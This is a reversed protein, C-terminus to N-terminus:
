RLVIFMYRLEADHRKKLPELYEKRKKKIKWELAERVTKQDPRYPDSIELNLIEDELKTMLSRSVQTAEQWTGQAGNLNIYETRINDFEIAIRRGTSTKVLDIAKNGLNSNQSNVRFEPEINAHLTLILTDMFSQKLAEENSHKVSNFLSVPCRLRGCECAKQERIHSKEYHKIFSYGDTFYNDCEPCNIRSGSKKSAETAQSIIDKIMEVDLTFGPLIDGGDIDGPVFAKGKENRKYIWMRENKPDILLGSTGVAFYESKFKEDLDDFVKKKKTDSDKITDSVEIAVTPTFPEGKFTWLQQQTLHHYVNKLTFSVDPARITRRGRVHFNFGGQSSTIVGGQGTLVNWNGLKRGIESVVAEMNITAQPM